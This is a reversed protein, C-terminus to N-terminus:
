KAKYINIAFGGDKDTEDGTQHYVDLIVNSLHYSSHKLSFFLKSKHGKIDKKLACESFESRWQTLDSLEQRIANAYDIRLLVGSEKLLHRLNRSFVRATLLDDFLEKPDNQCVEDEPDMERFRSLMEAVEVDQSDGYGNNNFVDLQEESAILNPFCLFALDAKYKPIDFNPLYSSILRIQPGDEDFAKDASLEKCSFESPIIEKVSNLLNKSGDIGVINSTPFYNLLHKIFIGNGCAYDVIFKPMNLNNKVFYDYAEKAIINYAEQHDDDMCRKTWWDGVSLDYAKPSDLLNNFDINKHEQNM